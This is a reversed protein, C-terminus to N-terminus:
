KRDTGKMAAAFEPDAQAMLFRAAQSLNPQGKRAGQGGVFGYEQAAKRLAAEESASLRCMFQIRRAIAM